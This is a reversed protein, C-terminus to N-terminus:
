MNQQPNGNNEGNPQGGNQQQQQAQQQMLQNQVEAQANLLSEITENSNVLKRDIDLLEKLHEITKMPDLLVSAIQGGLINSSIQMFEVVADIRDRDKTKKLPNIYNIDLNHIMMNIQEREQQAQQEDTATPEFSVLGLNKMIEFCSKLLPTLYEKEIKGYTTSYKKTFEFHQRAIEEATKYTNRDTSFVKELDIFNEKISKKIDDSKILSLQYNGILSLPTFTTGMPFFHIYGNKIKTEGEHGQPSNAMIPPNILRQGALIETKVADNLTKVNPLINAIIPHGWSLKDDRKEWRCVIFPNYKLTEEVFIEGFNENSVIYHYVDEEIRTKTNMYKGLYICSEVIEYETEWDYSDENSDIRLSEKSANSWTDLIKELTMKDHKYFVKDVIGKAGERLSVKNLPIFTFHFPNEITGESIKLIGTGAGVLNNIAVGHEAHFNSQNLFSFLTNTIEDYASDIEQGLLDPIIAPRIKAWNDWVPTITSRIYQSMSNASECSTADYLDESYLKNEAEEEGKRASRIPFTFTLYEKILPSIRQAESEAKEFIKKYRAESYKSKPIEYNEITKM